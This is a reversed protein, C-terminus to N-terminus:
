SCCRLLANVWGRWYVQCNAVAHHDDKVKPYPLFWSNKITMWFLFFYKSVFLNWLSVAVSKEDFFFKMTGRLLCVRFLLVTWIFFIKLLKKDWDCPHCNRAVLWGSTVCWPLNRSILKADILYLPRYITSINEDFRWEWVTLALSSFHQSFTSRGGGTGHWTDWAM